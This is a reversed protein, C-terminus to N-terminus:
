RRPALSALVQQLDDMAIPKTKHADFGAEQARQQDGEQGYGSLAILYTAALAPERRLARAVAYGDMGGPLGIDCLVVEPLFHRATEVGAPGSYAVEATHGALGLLMRMSDAADRNDEIVLIRYSRDAAPTPTTPEPPAAAARELPLRVTFESGCGPGESTARV